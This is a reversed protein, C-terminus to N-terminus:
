QRECRAVTASPGPFACAPLPFFSKRPQCRYKHAQARLVTATNVYLQKPHQEADAVILMFVFSQSLGMFYSFSSVFAQLLVYRGRADSAPSIPAKKLCPLLAHHLHLRRSPHQPLAVATTPTKECIKDCKQVDVIPSKHIGPLLQSHRLPLRAHTILTVM